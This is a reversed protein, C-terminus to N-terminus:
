TCGSWQETHQAKPLSKIIDRLFRPMTLDVWYGARISLGM